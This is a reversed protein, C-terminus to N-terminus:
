KWFSLGREAARPPQPNPTLTVDAPAIAVNTLPLTAKTAGAAARYMAYFVAAAGIAVLAVFGLVVGVVIAADTSSPDITAESAETQYVTKTEKNTVTNTVTNTLYTPGPPPSGPPAVITVSDVAVLTQALIRGNLSSGAGLTVSAKVLLVGELHAGALASVLGATQWVINADTPMGGGSGDTQLIMKVGAGIQLAGSTSFIFHDTASGKIYIDETILVDTGWRYVGATFTTGKILGAKVNINEGSTLARGAADAFASEMNSVATTMYAPTPVGYNAAYVKGTVQTSRYFQTSADQALSFGTMSAGSIPSVGIDGTIRTEAINTIGAKALIAFNKAVGLLVPPPPTYLPLAVRVASLTVPTKATLALMYPGTTDVSASLQGQFVGNLSFSVTKQDLDLHTGIVDGQTYAAGYPGLSGGDIGAHGSMDYRFTNHPGLPNTNVTPWLHFAGQDTSSSTCGISISNGTSGTHEKVTTYWSMIGASYAQSGVATKWDSASNSNRQVEELGSSGGSIVLDSASTVSSRIFLVTDTAEPPTWAGVVSLLFTAAAVSLATRPM